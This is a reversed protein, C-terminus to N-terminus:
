FNRFAVDFATSRAQGVYLGRGQLQPKEAVSRLTQDVVDEAVVDWHHAARAVKQRTLEFNQAVPVPSACGVVVVALPILVAYSQKM